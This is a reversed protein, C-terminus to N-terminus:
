QISVGFHKLSAVIADAYELSGNYVQAFHNRKVTRLLDSVPFDIMKYQCFSYFNKRQLEDNHFYNGIEGPYNIPDSYLNFGMVQFRGFSCAALMKATNISCHNARMIKGLTEADSYRQTAFIRPEFRLACDDNRSEIWGIVSDLTPMPVSAM